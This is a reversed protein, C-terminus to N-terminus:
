VRVIAFKYILNQWLYTHIYFFIYRIYHESRDTTGPMWQSDQFMDKMSSHPSSCIANFQRWSNLSFFINLSPSYPFQSTLHFQDMVNMQTEVEYKHMKKHTEKKDLHEKIKKTWFKPFIEEKFKWPKVICFGPCYQVEEAELVYSVFDWIYLWLLEWKREPYCYSLWTIVGKIAIAEIRM